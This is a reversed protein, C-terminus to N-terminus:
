PVARLKSALFATIFSSRLLARSKGSDLNIPKLVSQAGEMVVLSFPAVASRLFDKRFDFKLCSM